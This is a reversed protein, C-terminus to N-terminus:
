PTVRWADLDFEADILRQERLFDYTARVQALGEAPFPEVNFHAAPEAKAELAVDVGDKKAAYAWYDAINDRVHQNIAAVASGWAEGFGPHADLFSQLATSHETSLLHPHHSAKDIVVFGKRELDYAQPGGIVTADIAGSSLGALSEPTPVNRIEIRDDLGAAHLLGYAVRYRITGEPATVTRGVLSRIDTPGGKRGILWTDANVTTLALLRTPNGSARTRLAPMDGTVAVDVAGALLAASVDAGSQFFSFRVQTVGVSRLRDLLLGKEDAWGLNGQVTGTVSTMGVRLVFQQRGDAGAAGGACGALATLTLLLALLRLRPM